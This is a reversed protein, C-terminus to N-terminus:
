DDFFKAFARQDVPITQGEALKGDRLRYLYAQYNDYTRGDPRQGKAYLYMMINKDDASVEHNWIGYTSDYKLLHALIKPTTIDNLAVIEVDNPFKDWAIKFACRGIRGFGNIALKM